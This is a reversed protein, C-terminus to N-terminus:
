SGLSSGLQEVGRQQQTLVTCRGSVGGAAPPDREAPAGHGPRPETGAVLSLGRTGPRADARQGAQFQKVAADLAALAQGQAAFDGSQQNAAKLETIAQQIATAATAVQPNSTGPPGAPVPTGAEAPAATQGPVTPVVAGAGAGFVQDLAGSSRRRRLRGPRQLVGAGPGAASLQVGPQGTEIYVPEVFLLGGAVPLTLLNGYDVTSQGDRSLLGLEQASRPRASSSREAGATPRLRRPTRHCSCCAHDQRVDGSRLQGLRVGVPVRPEQFVLASTLQFSAPSGDAAGANGALIYYPPQPLAAAAGTGQVTPDSPVDWFSVNGFFEGPNDVHYRTLLERQM